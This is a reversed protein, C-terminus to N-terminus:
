PRIITIRFRSATAPAGPRRGARGAAAPARLVADGASSVRDVQVPGRIEAPADPKMDWMDIQPPGGFLYVLICRKAGGFSQSGGNSAPTFGRAAGAPGAGAFLALTGAQLFRRRALHYSDSSGM